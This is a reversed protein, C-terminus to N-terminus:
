DLLLVVVVAVALPCRCTQTGSQREPIQGAALCLSNQAWSHVAAAAAVNPSVLAAAAVPLAIREAVPSSPLRKWQRSGWNEVAPRVLVVNYSIIRHQVLSHYEYM